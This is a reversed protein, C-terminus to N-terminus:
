SAISPIDSNPGLTPVNIVDEHTFVSSFQQNLAEAKVLADNLIMRNTKIDGVGVEDTEVKKIHSWFLKPNEYVAQMLFASMYQNRFKSLEKNLTRRASKFASWLTLSLLTLSRGLDKDM